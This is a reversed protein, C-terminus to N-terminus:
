NNIDAFIKTHTKVQLLINKLYNLSKNNDVAQNFIKNQM